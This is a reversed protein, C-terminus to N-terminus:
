VHASRVYIGNEHDAAVLLLHELKEMLVDLIGEVGNMFEEFNM